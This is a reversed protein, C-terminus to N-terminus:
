VLVDLLFISHTVCILKFKRMVTELFFFLVPSILEIENLRAHGVSQKLPLWSYFSTVLYNLNKQKINFRHFIIHM